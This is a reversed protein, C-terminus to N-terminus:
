RGGDRYKATIERLSSPSGLVARIHMDRLTDLYDAPIAGHLELLPRMVDDYYRGALAREAPWEADDPQLAISGDGYTMRVRAGPGLKPIELVGAGDVVARYTPPGDLPVDAAWMEVTLPLDASTLTRTIVNM